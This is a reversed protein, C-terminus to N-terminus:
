DELEYYVHFHYTSTYENYSHWKVMIGENALRKAVENAENRHKRFFDVALLETCDGNEFVRDYFLFDDDIYKRKKFIGKTKYLGRAARNVCGRRIKNYAYTIYEDKVRNIYAKQNQSKRNAESELRERERKIENSTIAM